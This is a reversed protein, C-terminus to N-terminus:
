AALMHCRGFSWLDCVVAWCILSSVTCLPAIFAIRPNKRVVEVVAICISVPSSGGCRRSCDFTNHVRVLICVSGFPWWMYSHISFALFLLSLAIVNGDFRSFRPLCNGCIAIGGESVIRGYMRGGHHVGVISMWMSGVFFSALFCWSSAFYGDVVAHM